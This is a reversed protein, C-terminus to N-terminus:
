QWGPRTRPAPFPYTPSLRGGMAEIGKGSDEQEWLFHRHTSEGAGGVRRDGRLESYHLLPSLWLGWIRHLLTGRLVAQMLEKDTIHMGRVAQDLFRWTRQVSTSKTLNIPFTVSDMQM